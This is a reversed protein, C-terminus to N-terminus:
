LNCANVLSNVKDARTHRLSIACKKIGLPIEWELQFSTQVSLYIRCLIKGRDQRMYVSQLWIDLKNNSEGQRSGGFSFFFDYIYEVAVVRIIIIMIMVVLVVEELLWPHFVAAM